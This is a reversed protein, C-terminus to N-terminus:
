TCITSTVKIVVPKGFNEVFERAKDFDTASQFTEYRTFFNLM